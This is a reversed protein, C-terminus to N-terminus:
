CAGAETHHSQVFKELWHDEVQDDSVEVSRLLDQSRMAAGEGSDGGHQVAKVFQQAEGIIADFDDDNLTLASAM